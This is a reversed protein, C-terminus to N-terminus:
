GGLGGLVSPRGESQPQHDVLEAHVILREYNDWKPHCTTLTLMAQSPEVGPQGPVPAVVEVASPAVIHNQTVRYTYWNGQTEVVIADGEYVKDLDWFTAPNRHGAIAFNGVEGPMAGSPYRGPAYRIDDLEVGEVVVWHKGLKPVYLRAIAHGPPPGLPEPTAEPEEDDPSPTPAVPEAWMEELQRDLEDQHSAVVAAKGWVEYAALLLVIVGVTILLEGFGRVTTRVVTGFTTRTLASYVSRYGGTDTQLARLPIVQEGAKPEPKPADDDPDPPPAPPVIGLLSTEAAPPPGTRAPERHRTRAGVASIVATQDADVRGADIVATQDADRLRPLVTTAEVAPSVPAPDTSDAWPDWNQGTAPAPAPAPQQPQAPRPTPPPASFNPAPPNLTPPRPPAPQQSPVPQQGWPEAQQGAQGVRAGPQEDAQGEPPFSDDRM